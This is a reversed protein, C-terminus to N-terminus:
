AKGFKKLIDPISQIIAKLIETKKTSRERIFKNMEEIKNNCQDRANMREPEGKYYMNVIKLGFEGIADFKAEQWSYLEAIKRSYFTPKLMSKTFLSHIENAIDSMVNECHAVLFDYLIKESAAFDLFKFVMWSDYCMPRKKSRQATFYVTSFDSDVLIYPNLGVEFAEDPIGQVLKIEGSEPILESCLSKFGEECLGREHDINVFIMKKSIANSPELEPFAKQVYVIIEEICADLSNIKCFAPNTTKLDELTEGSLFSDIIQQFKHLNPDHEHPNANFFCSFIISIVGNPFIHVIPKIHIDFDSDKIYFELNGEARYCASLSQIGNKGVSNRHMMVVHPNKRSDDHMEVQGIHRIFINEDKLAKKRGKSDNADRPTTLSDLRRKLDTKSLYISPCFITKSMIIHLKRLPM